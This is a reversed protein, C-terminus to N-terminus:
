FVGKEVLKPTIFVLLERKSTSEVSRRFLHGLLPIDGLIPTKAVSEQVDETYIGGLVVTQGNEVLVQTILENTDIGIQGTDLLQPSDNSFAIDMIISGDPTIQPTVDLALVADIFQTNTGGDSVTTFPIQTGSSISAQMKDSTLIKPSSIVEGNGVQEQATIELELLGSALDSIGLAVSTTAGPASLDISASNVSVKQDGYINVAGWNVGLAQSFSENALVMRAEILVQRVSVDVRGLMRRIEELKDETDSIILTNTREDALATGRDSSFKSERILQLLDSAKAYNVEFFETRLPSLEKIEQNTKLKKTKQEVIEDTPAVFLINGKELKDLNNSKLILDLAQDWPVDVLRLTVNGSVNDGVVLNKNNIDAIIQLVQRVPIDQFNFNLKEGSYVIEEETQEELEELTIPSVNVSYSDGMQFGFYDYNGQPYVTVLVNPGEQTATFYSVPTSFDNVDFRKRLRQPLFANKVLLEIRAGMQDIETKAGSGTEIVVVGSGNEGTKFDISQIENSQAGRSTSATIPKRLYTPQIQTVKKSAGTMFDIVVNNGQVYSEHQYSSNMNIIARLKSGGDVVSLSRLNGSLVQESFSTSANPVDVVLQPPQTIKYTSVSVPAADFMLTVREKGGSLSESKADLLTLAHTSLAVTSLLLGAFIQKM